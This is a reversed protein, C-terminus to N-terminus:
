LPEHHEEKLLIKHAPLLFQVSLGQGPKSDISCAIDSGFALQMRIVTNMLGINERIEHRSLKMQLQLLAQEELGKGNDAIELLVQNSETLRKARIAITGASSKAPIIGHFVANEVLPQLILKPIQWNRLEPSIDADLHFRCEYRLELLSLYDGTYRIEEDLTVYQDANEMSYRLLALFSGMIKNIKDYDKLFAFMRITNVTNYMFHPNIQSQLARIELKRKLQEGEKLEDMSRHLRSGMVNLMFGLEGIENETYYPYRADFEGKMIAKMQRKVAQLPRYMYYGLLIVLIIGAGILIFLFYSVTSNIVSTSETLQELPIQSLLIWRDYTDSEHISIIANDLTFQDPKGRSRWEEAIQHIRERNEDLSLRSTSAVVNAEPTVLSISGESGLDIGSIMRLFFSNDMSIMLVGKPAVSSDYPIRILYYTTDLLLESDLAADKDLFLSTKGSALFYDILPKQLSAAYQVPVSKSSLIEETAKTYLQMEKLTGNVVAATNLTTLLDRKMLVESFYSAYPKLANLVSPFSAYELSIQQIRLMNEEIQSSIHHVLQTNLQNVQKEVTKNSVSVSVRSLAILPIISLALMLAILRLYFSKKLFSMFEAFM